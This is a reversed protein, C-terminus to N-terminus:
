QLIEPIVLLVEVRAAQGNQMAPRFQWQQLAALVFQAQAFQPPFAISLQEFHGAENVYGHVMLADADISDPPINPRVINYPWPADIHNVYGGAEADESRPISYQLIWSKSLGVHLYVTYAMRGAWLEATEPYKESLASGVIVAGFQGDKPLAIQAVRENGTTADPKTPKLDSADIGAVTKRFAEASQQQGAAANAGIGSNTTGTSNSHSTENVPPLTVAGQTMRLDSLSMVAAPTSQRSSRATTEPALQVADPAHVTLPSTTGPLVPVKQLNMPTSAIGVDSLNLEENPADFTPRVDSAAREHPKPPVITAAPTREPTWVLVRPVPVQEKLALHLTAKPQVLTQPGEALGDIHRSVAKGGAGKQLRSHPGPYPMSAGSPRSPPPNDMSLELRRVVYRTRFTDDTIEPRYLIGFSLFAIAAIHMAFSAAFTAPRHGSEVSQSFLSIPSSSNKM